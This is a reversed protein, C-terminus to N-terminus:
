SINLKGFVLTEVAICELVKHIYQMKKQPSKEHFESAFNPIQDCFQISIKM